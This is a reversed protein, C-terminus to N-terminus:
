FVMVFVHGCWLLFMLVFLVEVVFVAGVFVGVFIDGCFCRWLFAFVDGCVCVCWSFMVTFVCFHRWLLVGGSCGWSSFFVILSPLGTGGLMAFFVYFHCVLAVSSYFVRHLRNSVCEVMARFCTKSQM